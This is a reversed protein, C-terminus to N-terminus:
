RGADKSARRAARRLQIVRSTGAIAVVGGGAVASVLMAVGLPLTFSVGVYHVHVRQLNELIFILLLILIVLVGVIAVWAASVRTLQVPELTGSPVDGTPLDDSIEPVPDPVFEQEPDSM